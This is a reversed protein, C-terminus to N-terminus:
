EPEGRALGDITDSYQEKAARISNILEARRKWTLQHAKNEQADLNTLDHTLTVIRDLLDLGAPSVVFRLVAIATEERAQNGLRLAYASIVQRRVLHMVAVVRAPDAIIVNDIVALQRSGQPFATTALIAFDAQVRLQDARLKEVYRNMFRTTNKSDILITGIVGDAHVVRHMIDAGAVGKGIRSVRDGPFEIKLAEFLDVEGEEGLEPATKKQLARQMETLKQELRLKEAFTKMREGNVAETKAREFAERELELREQIATELGAKLAEAARAADARIKAVEATKKSEMEAIDKVFRAKLSREDQALREQNERDMRQRIERYRQRTLLSGCLPCQADEVHLGAKDGIPLNPNDKHTELTAM